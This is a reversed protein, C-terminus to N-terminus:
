PTTSNSRTAIDSRVRRLIAHSGRKMGFADAIHKAVYVEAEPHRTKMEMSMDKAVFTYTHDISQGHEAYAGSPARSSSGHDLVAKNVSGHNNQSDGKLPVLAVLMGSKVEGGVHDLNLLVEDRIYGDNVTVTCVRGSRLDKDERVTSYSHTSASSPSGPTDTSGHDSGLRPTSARRLHSWRLNKRSTSPMPGAYRSM